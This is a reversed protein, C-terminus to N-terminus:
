LVVGLLQEFRELLLKGAVAGDNVILLHALHNLKLTILALLDGHEQVCKGCSQGDPDFLANRLLIDLHM